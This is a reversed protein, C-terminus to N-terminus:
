LQTLAFYLIRVETVSQVLHFLFNTLAILFLNLGGRQKVAFKRRFLLVAAIGNLFICSIACIFGIIASRLSGKTVYSTQRAILFLSDTDGFRIFVYLCIFYFWSQSLAILVAVVLFPWIFKSMKADFKDTQKDIYLVFAFRNMSEAIVFFSRLYNFFYFGFMIIRYFFSGPDFNIFYQALQPNFFLKSQLNLSVYYFIDFVTLLKTLTFFSSKFNQKQKSFQFLWLIFFHACLSPSGYSIQICLAWVPFYSAM